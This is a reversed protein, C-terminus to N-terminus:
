ALPDGCDTFWRMEDGILALHGEQRSTGASSSFTLALTFADEITVSQGDPAYDYPEPGEVRRVEVDFGPTPELLAVAARCQKRGYMQLVAPHLRALLFADDEAQIADVFLDFFEQATETLEPPPEASPESSESPEESPISGTSESPEPSPESAPPPSSGSAAEGGNDGLAFRGVLGLSVLAAGVLMLIQALRRM